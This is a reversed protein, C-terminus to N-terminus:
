HNVSLGVAYSRGRYRLAQIKEKPLMSQGPINTSRGMDAASEVPTEFAVARLAAFDM